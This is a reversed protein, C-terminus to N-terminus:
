GAVIGGAAHVQRQAQELLQLASLVEISEDRGRFARLLAMAGAIEAEASVLLHNADTM